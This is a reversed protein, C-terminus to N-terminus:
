SEHSCPPEDNLTTNGIRWVAGEVLDNSDSHTHSFTKTQTRGEAIVYDARDIGNQGHDHTPCEAHHCPIRPDGEFLSIPPPVDLETDWFWWKLGDGDHRHAYLGAALTRGDDLRVAEGLHVHSKRDAGGDRVHLDWHTCEGNPGIDYEVGGPGGGDIVPDGDGGNGGGTDGGNGGGNGGGGGGNGGGGNGGGTDGGNGGGTDGDDTEGDDTGDEQDETGELLSAAYLWEVAEAAEIPSNPCFLGEGESCDSTLIGANKLASINDRFINTPSVDSYGHPPDSDDLDYARTVFAAM